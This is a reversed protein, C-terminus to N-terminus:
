LAVDGQMRTFAYINSVVAHSVGNFMSLFLGTRTSQPRALNGGGHAPTNSLGPLFCRASKM